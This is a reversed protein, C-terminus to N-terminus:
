SSSEDKKKEGRNKYKVVSDVVLDLCIAAAVMIVLIQFVLSWSM